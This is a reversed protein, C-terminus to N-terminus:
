LKDEDPLKRYTGFYMTFFSACGGILNSIPEALFVGMVSLAGIKPLLLTLPVVIIVKRLLSFFISHKAKGLAVFSSQGVFQLSMFIFGAFYIMLPKVGATVLVEESSFMKLFMHPFILILLWMFATYGVGTAGMFCIGKKVRKYSGAGYNYSIVPQSGATIGNIPLSIMERISNIITMIGVYLDGGYFSLTANCVAQVICNTASMFFGALGLPIIEKLLRLVPHLVDSLTLQIVAKKGFLFSLVLICSVCQSIVSAWAAGAVGLSFVFIFIPDLIINLVAGTMMYLMAKEAYGQLNIFHNMGTGMTVFVTGTLYVTLYLSAYKYTMDSAGLLYLLPRKALFFIVACLIGTMFQMFMTTAEIDRARDANKSGRAMACLPAGGTAFLNIFAAILSIVPFTLGVGTLAIGESEGSMHGLYVRDVINYIVQVLQALTLPIAQSLILSSVKGEGFNGKKKVNKSPM